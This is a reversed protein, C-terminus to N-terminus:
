AEVVKPEMVVKSTISNAIVCYKHAKRFLEEVKAVDTGAAVRITPQLLIEGVRSVREETALTAEAQDSYGRVEVRAKAALALFTLMHCHALTGALLDEPNWREATGGFMPLSSVPIGALGAPKTLEASRSYDSELTNGHWALRAPYSETM